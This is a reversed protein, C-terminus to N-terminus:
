ILDLMNRVKFVNFNLTKRVKLVKYLGPVDLM